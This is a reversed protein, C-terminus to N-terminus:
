FHMYIDKLLTNSIVDCIVIILITIVAIILLTKGLKKREEKSAKIFKIACAIASALLIIGSVTRIGYIITNLVTHTESPMDTPESYKPIVARNSGYISGVFITIFIITLVFITKRKKM